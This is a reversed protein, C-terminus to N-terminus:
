QVADSIFALIEQVRDNAPPYVDMQIVCYVRTAGDNIPFPEHTLCSILQLPIRLGFEKGVQGVIEVTESLHNEVSTLVLM